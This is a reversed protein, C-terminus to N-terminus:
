RSKVRHFGIKTMADQIEPNRMFWKWVGGNRANAASLLTIGQDIGIIEPDVWNTLPNFADTLGYRGYIRNGYQTRMYRLTELAIKPTLMLSGAAACPVVTGDIRSDAPPGGWIRYGGVSDSATIGWLSASYDPFRRHLGICFERNAETATIANDFWNINTPAGEELNRFDVWAHSYQQTFLPGDSIYTFNEFKVKPRAWVYWSKAPIPHTPSGIALIYLIMHESYTDWNSKLLGLDPRWGHSLIGRKDLLWPFDMKRYIQDALAPIDPDSAFRQRVTLVGAVLLATDISSVESDRVREGTQADLWHYYFGNKGPAQYAFFHLTDRARVRLEAEPMWHRDAAIALATLGFGTAAISAAYRNTNPPISGDTLSRDRVLGTHPDAQEWFYLFARHGIDDLFANDSRPSLVSLLGLPKPRVAQQSCGTLLAAAM